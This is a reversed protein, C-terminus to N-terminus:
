GDHRLAENLATLESFSTPGNEAIRRLLATATAKIRRLKALEAKADVVLSMPITANKANLKVILKSIPSM